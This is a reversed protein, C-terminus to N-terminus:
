KARVQHQMSLVGERKRMASNELGMMITM